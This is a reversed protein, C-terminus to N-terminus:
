RIGGQDSLTELAQAVATKFDNFHGRRINVHATFNSFEHGDPDMQPDISEIKASEVLGSEHLAALFTYLQSTEDTTGELEVTCQRNKTEDMLQQLDIEMPSGSPPQDSSKESKQRTNNVAAQTHTLEIRTIIIESPLPNTIQALIQSKPYPHALFTLLRAHHRKQAVEAKTREVEQLLQAIREHQAKLAALQSRVSYLEALQFLSVVALLGLLLSFVLLRPVQFNSRRRKERFRKPLFEIENM